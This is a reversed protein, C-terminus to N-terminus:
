LPHKTTQVPPHQNSLANPPHIHPHITGGELMILARLRKCKKTHETVVVCDWVYLFLTM